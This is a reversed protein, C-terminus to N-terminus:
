VGQEYDQLIVEKVKERDLKELDLWRFHPEKRFWTFQRKAYRRSVKKFEQLFFEEEEKTRGTKLFALAQKYGIAQSATHNKEIGARQLSAVERLFGKDLMQQCRNEIRSYLLNKEYYLFWCRYDYNDQEPKEKAEFDSVKKESLTIIELARIIKHKDNETITKAYDPDLLQLQEYLVSPGLKEMKEELGKRVELDPPPGQPPGSLFIHLYFGSGGVVIPVAGRALIKEVVEHAEHYYQAVNFPETVERIDIMYHPVERRQQVSAKATGIDMGRYVQMSDASIIEGGIAKALEISLDTKGTATPGAIVIVKKKRSFVPTKKKVPFYIHSFFSELEKDGLYGVGM